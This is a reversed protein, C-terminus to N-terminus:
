PGPDKARCRRSASRSPSGTETMRSGSIRSGVDVHGVVEGLETFRKESSGSAGLRLVFGSAILSTRCGGDDSGESGEAGDISRSTGFTASANPAWGSSMSNPQPPVSALHARRPQAIDVVGDEGVARLTTASCRVLVLRGENAAAFFRGSDSM